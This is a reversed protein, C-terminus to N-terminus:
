PSQSQAAKPELSEDTGLRLLRKLCERWGLHKMSGTGRRKRSLPLWIVVIRLGKREGKGEGERQWWREEVNPEVLVWEMLRCGRVAESVTVEVPAGYFVAVEQGEAISRKVEQCFSAANTYVFFGTGVPPFNVATQADTTSSQANQLTNRANTTTTNPGTKNAIINKKVPVTPKLATLGAPAISGSM